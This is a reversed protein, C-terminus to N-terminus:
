GARPYRGTLWRGVKWRPARAGAAKHLDVAAAFSLEEFRKMWARTSDRGTDTPAAVAPLIRVLITRGFYLEDTGGFVIPVVQAGTRAALYSVGASLQRPAPPWSPPGLEPFIVVNHGARVALEVESVVAEFGTVGRGVAIAGGALRAAGRRLWSGTVARRDAIWITRRPLMGLLLFPEVWNRHPLGALITGGSPLNERGVVRVSFLAGAAVRCVGRAVGSAVSLRDACRMPRMM